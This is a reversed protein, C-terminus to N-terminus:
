WRKKVRAIGNEFPEINEYDIAILAKGKEDIYGWKDGKRVKAKGNEFPYAQTYQAKIIMKGNEDAYGYKEKEKMVTLTQASLAGVLATLLLTFAIRLQTM